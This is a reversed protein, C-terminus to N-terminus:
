WLKDMKKKKLDDKFNTCLLFVSNSFIDELLIKLRMYGPFFSNVSQRPLVTM